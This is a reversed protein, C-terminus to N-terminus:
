IAPTSPKRCFKIWRTRTVSCTPASAAEGANRTRETENELEAEDQIAILVTLIDGVNGARQDKFFNKRNSAWLSNPQKQEVVPAPMPMSVPKYDTRLQPNEIPTMQPPNGVNALRDVASCASLSCGVLLTLAINRYRNLM